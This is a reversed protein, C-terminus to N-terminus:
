SKGWRDRADNLLKALDRPGMPWGNGVSAL